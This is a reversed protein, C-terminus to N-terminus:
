EVSQMASMEDSDQQSTQTTSTTTQTNDAVRMSRVQARLSPASQTISSIPINFPGSLFLTRFHSNEYFNIQNQLPNYDWRRSSGVTWSSEVTFSRNVNQVFTHLDMTSETIPIPHPTINKQPTASDLDRHCLPCTNRQEKAQELCYKHFVHKCKTEITDQETLNELCISCNKIETNNQVTM